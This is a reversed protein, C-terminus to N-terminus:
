KKKTNSKIFQVMLDNGAAEYAKCAKDKHRANLLKDGIENLMKNNMEVGAMEYIKFVTPYCGRKIFKEASELLKEKDEVLKLANLATKYNHSFILCDVM